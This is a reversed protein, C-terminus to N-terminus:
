QKKRAESKLQEVEHTLRLVERHLEGNAIEVQKEFDLIMLELKKITNQSDKLAKAYEDVQNRLERETETAVAKTKTQKRLEVNKKQENELADIHEELRRNLKGIRQNALRLEDALFDVADILDSKSKIKDLDYSTHSRRVIAEIKDLAKRDADEALCASGIGILAIILAPNYINMKM